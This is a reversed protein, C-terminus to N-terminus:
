LSRLLTELEEVSDILVERAKSGMPPGVVGLEELQDVIRAARGYGLKLKRQILSVSGQQHQVIVRAADELMPDMDSLLNKDRAGKKEYISPLLYRRSYGQQAYIYDTLHEVEDTSIFANQLRIPKPMGGPLFLMDGRGLLQEAGKGDLITRSDVKSSTQYAIRAPFNAKITGTIVNVSPRQTAVILHIGVARALQALRAIPEEVEKGSTMMLDALEDIVVVIYPLKYHKMEDTNKPAAKPNSIKKNYDVINRVGVKALKDYRKEMEIEVSKLVLLANQPTTIIEEDIDPSVALFHKTLKKYFSLEIKKPDVIVFKVESPHKAYLLSAIMMNIGVSKGAGTAGAILLHPMKTLDAIFTEGSITKGLALPLEYKDKSRLLEAIVTRASVTISEKNPIEVGIASKGPIPAIIRIGRAALALAIDNELSVIRSIKVGPAPVLEYLTVVPGPTVSIDKIEIDFLALKDKLLEANLKLEEESVEIEEKAPEALLDLKPPKFKINEEWQEPLDKEKEEDVAPIIVDEGDSEKSAGYDEDEHILEPPETLVSTTKKIRITTEAAEDTEEEVSAKDENATEKESEVGLVQQIFESKTKKVSQRKDRAPENAPVNIKVTGSEKENKKGKDFFSKIGAFIGGFDIDFYIILSILFATSLIIISGLAGFLKTLGAGLFLGVKGSLENTDPFIKLGFRLVGFFTAGILGAFVLFNSLRVAANLFKGNVIVLGWEFILIPVILSWWGITSNILFDSIYAGFIGLLNRAANPQAAIDPNQSFVKFFDTFRYALNAKDFRSYSIVSLFILLAFIMLLIGLIKRKKEPPVFYPSDEASKKSVAESKRIRKKVAM